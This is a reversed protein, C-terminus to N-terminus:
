RRLKRLRERAERIMQDIASEWQDPRVRAFPRPAPTPAIPEAAAVPQPAPAEAVPGDLHASVAGLLADAVM